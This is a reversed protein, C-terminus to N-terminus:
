PTRGLDILHLALTVQNNPITRGGPLGYSAFPQGDKLAIFPCMNHLPRKGPAISNALGPRPDFRAVGHGLTMGTGPATGMAGFAGGGAPCAVGRGGGCRDAAPWPQAVFREATLEPRRLYGRAVQVGGLWLEGWVGIPQLM